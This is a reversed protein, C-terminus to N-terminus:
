GNRVEMRRVEVNDVRDTDPGFDEKLGVTAYREALEETAFLGYIASGADPQYDDIVMWVYEKGRFEGCFDDVKCYIIEGDVRPPYRNCIVYNNNTDEKAWKCDKCRM